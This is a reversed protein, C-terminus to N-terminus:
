EAFVGAFSLRTKLSQLVESLEKSNLFYLVFIGVCVGGLGAISAQLFLGSGTETPLWEALLILLQYCSFSAIVAASFDLAFSSLISRLGGFRRVFSFLLFSAAVASGLSYSLPYVLINTGSLGEVRLLSELFDRLFPSTSFWHSLIFAFLVTLSAGLVASFLPAKTEGSAYYARTLLLLVSQFLISVSFIALCAATLRTDTWDFAGTGLVVRVIHARLVIILAVAPLSWFFIHRLATVAKDRFAGLEGGTWLRALAPFAAMSYSAGIVALPASQLNLAFGFISISGEEGFAALATLVVLSIHSASLSLTRPLSLLAVTKLEPMSFNLTPLPLLGRRYIFPIQILLHLLAGVVVGLGVGVIGYNPALFIIGSIIGLNYLLPSLAYLIFRQQAQVVAGLISSLGLIAPSILLLRTLFLLEADYGRGLLGGFVTPVIYSSLFFAILSGLAVAVFFASAIRSLFEQLEKRDKEKEVILPLLVSLSVLSAISLYIFDQVRFAAYYVDLAASAGFAHALLRDRVLALLQSLLAAGALVYAASHLNEIGNHLISLVRDM